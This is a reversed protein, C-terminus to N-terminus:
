CSTRQALETQVAIVTARAQDIRVAVLVKHFARAQFLRRWDFAFIDAFTFSLAAVLLVAISDITAM